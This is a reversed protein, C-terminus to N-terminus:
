GRLPPRNIAASAGLKKKKNKLPAAKCPAESGLGLGARTGACGVCRRAAGSFFLFCPPTIRRGEIFLGGRRPKPLRESLFVSAAGRFVHTIVVGKPHGRNLILSATVTAKMQNESNYNGIEDQHEPHLYESLKPM